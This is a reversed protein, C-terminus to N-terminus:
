VGCRHEVQVVFCRDEEIVSNRSLQDKMRQLSELQLTLQDMNNSGFRDVLQKQKEHIRDTQSLHTATMKQLASSMEEYAPKSKEFESLLGKHEAECKVVQKKLDEELKRANKLASNLEVIEAEMQKEFAKFLGEVHDKGSKSKTEAEKAAEELRKAEEKLRVQLAKSADAQRTRYEQEQRQLMSMRVDLLCKQMNVLATLKLFAQVLHEAKVIQLLEIRQEVYKIVTQGGNAAKVLPELASNINPNFGREDIHVFCTIMSRKQQEARAFINSAKAVAEPLDNACGDSLFVVFIRAFKPGNEVAKEIEDWACVFSTTGTCGEAHLKDGLKTTVPAANVLCKAVHNFCLLTNKDQSGACAARFDEVAKTALKFRSREMSWSNDVAFIIHNINVHDVNLSQRQLSAIKEECEQLPGRSHSEDEQMKEQLDQLRKKTEEKANKCRFIFDKATNEKDHQLSQLEGKKDKLMQMVRKTDEAAAEQRIKLFDKETEKIKLVGEKESQQTELEKQKKEHEKWEEWVGAIDGLIDSSSIQRSAAQIAQLAADRHEPDCFSSLKQEMQQFNALVRTLGELEPKICKSNFKVNCGLGENSGPPYVFHGLMMGVHSMWALFLDVGPYEPAWWKKLKELFSAHDPFLPGLDELM